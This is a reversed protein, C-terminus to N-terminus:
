NGPGSDSKKKQGLRLHSFSLFFNNSGTIRTITSVHGDTMLNTKTYEKTVGGGVFQHKVLCLEPKLNM